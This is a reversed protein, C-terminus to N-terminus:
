DDAAWYRGILKGYILEKPVTGWYRSDSSNRRNDGMVFYHGAPIPRPETTDHSLNQPDLYPEEISNNNILVKGDRMEITEGPLGIIRKIYSKSTDHPYLFIVIEGRKLEGIRRSVFVRDGHKLHPSMAEGEIRVPQVVYVLILSPISISVIVGALAIAITALYRKRSWPKLPNPPM